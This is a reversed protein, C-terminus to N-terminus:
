WGCEGLAQSISVSFQDVRDCNLFFPINRHSSRCYEHRLADILVYNSTKDYPSSISTDAGKTIEGYIKFECEVWGSADLLQINYHPTHHEWTFKNTASSLTIPTLGKIWELLRPAWFDFHSAHTVPPNRADSYNPEFQRSLTYIIKINDSASLSDMSESFSELRRYLSCQYPLLDIPSKLHEPKIELDLQKSSRDPYQRIYDSQNFFLGHTINALQNSQNAILQNSEDFVAVESELMIDYDAGICNNSQLVIEAWIHEDYAQQFEIADLFLRNIRKFGSFNNSYLSKKRQQVSRSQRKTLM